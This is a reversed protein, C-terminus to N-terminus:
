ACVPQEGSWRHIPIHPAAALHRRAAEWDARWRTWDRLESAPDRRSRAVFSPFHARGTPEGTVNYRLDFSWRIGESTNPLAAHPTLPHLLVAGGRPVPLPRARGIDFLAPPIALQGPGPCHTAMGARHVGPVAQLCGNEETADTVAIWVTVMRTADAEPHAVGRDQHWATAGVHPREEDPALRREPLKIRVHQIPNSTIEPGILAEVADLLRPATAMAFVPASFHMPTDAAIPGGPLSIDMSQFWDLGRQTAAFLREEFTMPAPDPMLGEAHWARCLRALLAEYDARVSALVDAPVLDPVVLVGEREFTGIEVDTLM